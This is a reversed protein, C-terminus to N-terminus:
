KVNKYYKYIYREIDYDNLTEKMMIKTTIFYIHNNHEQISTEPVYMTSRAYNKNYIDLKCWEQQM